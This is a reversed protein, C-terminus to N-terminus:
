RTPPAAPREMGGRAFFSVHAAPWRPKFHHRPIAFPDTVGPTIAMRVSGFAAEYGARRIASTIEINIEALTGFPQAFFRCPRGLVAELETKCGAVEDRLRKPCSSIASLRVHTRGHAGIDFGAGALRHLGDRDLVGVHDAYNTAERWADRNAADSAGVMVSNVFVIAPVNAEALIPVANRLVCALGDDFSLHFYRGDVPVDGRVLALAESTSIFQGQNGIGAIHREFAAREDDLVHHAFLCRIFRDPGNGRLAAGVSLGVHRLASRMRARVGPKRRHFQTSVEVVAAADPRM